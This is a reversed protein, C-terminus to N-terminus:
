PRRERGNMWFAFPAISYGQDWAKIRSTASEPLEITVGTRLKVSTRTVEPDAYGQRHLAIAIPCFRGNGHVAQEIDQRTISVLTTDQTQPSTSM